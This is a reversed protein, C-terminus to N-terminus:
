MGGMGDAEDDAGLTGPLPASMGAGMRVPQAAMSPQMPASGMGGAMVGAGGFLTPSAPALQMVPAHTLLEDLRLRALHIDIRAAEAELAVQHYARVVALVELLPAEKTAYARESSDLALKTTPLIKEEYLTLTEEASRLDQRAHEWETRLDVLVVAIRAREAEANKQGADIQRSQKWPFFIPLSIGIMAGVNSPEEKMFSQMGMLQVAFDPWVDLALARSDADAIEVRARAALLEPQGAIADDFSAPVAFDVDDILEAADASEDDLTLGRLAALNIMSARLSRGIVLADRELVAIEVDALLADHHVSTGTIYRTSASAQVERVAQRLLENTARAKQLYIARLFVQTAAVRLARTTTTTERVAARARSRAADVHADRRGPFPVVQSLQYRIVPMQDSLSIEDPGAAVFPEDWWGAADAARSLVEARARSEALSPSQAEVEALVDSLKLTAPGGPQTPTFLVLVVVLNTM